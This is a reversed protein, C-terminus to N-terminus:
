NVSRYASCAGPLLSLSGTASEFTRDLQFGVKYEFHQAAVIPNLVNLWNGDFSAVIDGCAAGLQLELDFERWLGHLGQRGLKTGVDVHVVVNPDLRKAFANYLWRYSNLKGSNSSKLLLM